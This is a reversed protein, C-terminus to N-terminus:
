KLSAPRIALYAFVIQVQNWTMGESQQGSDRHPCDYHVRPHHLSGTSEQETDRQVRSAGAESSTVLGAVVAVVGATKDAM